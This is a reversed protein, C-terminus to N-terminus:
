NRLYIKIKKQVFLICKIASGPVDGMEIRVYTDCLCFKPKMRMKSSKEEGIREDNKSVKPKLQSRDIETLFAYGILKLKLNLHFIFFFFRFCQPLHRLSFNSCCSMIHYPLTLYPRARNSFTM